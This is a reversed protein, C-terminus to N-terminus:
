PSNADRYFVCHHQLHNLPHGASIGATALLWRAGDPSASYRPKTTDTLVRKKAKLADVDNTPPPLHTSPRANITTNAQRICLRVKKSCASAVPLCGNGVSLSSLKM